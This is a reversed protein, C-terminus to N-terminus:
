KEDKTLFSKIETKLNVGFVYRVFVYYVAAACIVFVAVSLKSSTQFIMKLGFVVISMAFSALLFKYVPEIFSFKFEKKAKLLIFVYSTSVIIHAAPFGYYGFFHTLPLTLIWMLITAFIMFSFTTKVRGLANYLNMFPASFSIILSSAAFIYFLPLAPQWKQYNPIIHTMQEMVLIM